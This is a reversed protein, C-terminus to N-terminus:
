AVPIKKYFYVAVETEDNVSPAKKSIMEKFDNVDMGHSLYIFAASLQGFKQKISDFVRAKVPVHSKDRTTIKIVMSEPIGEPWPPQIHIFRDCDLKNNFNTELTIEKENSM